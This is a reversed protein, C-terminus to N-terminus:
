AKDERLVWVARLASQAFVKNPSLEPPALIRQAGADALEIAVLTDGGARLVLGLELFSWIVDRRGRAAATTELRAFGHGWPGLLESFIADFGPVAVAQFTFLARLTETPFVRVGRTRAGVARSYGERLRRGLDPDRVGAVVEFDPGFRDPQARVLDALKLVTMSTRWDLDASVGGLLAVLDMEGVHAGDGPLTLLTRESMWDAVNVTLQGRAPGDGLPRFTWRSSEGPSELQEFTGWPGDERRLGASIHIAHERLTKAVLTASAAHSVILRIDLEAHATLLLAALDVVAPRYGCFLVRRLPRTAPAPTFEPPERRPLLEVPVRRELGHERLHESFREVSAFDRCVAVIGRIPCVPAGDGPSEGLVLETRAVDGDADEVGTFWGIPVVRADSPASLGERYLWDFSPAVGPTLAGERGESDYDFFFTYIEHGERSTMLERLLRQREPRLIAAAVYLALFKETPALTTRPGGAVRAASANAQELIEAVIWCRRNAERAALIASTTHAD